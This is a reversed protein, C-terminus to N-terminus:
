IITLMLDYINDGLYAFLFIKIANGLFAALLFKLVPYKVAGASVGVLDFLPNPLLAFTFILPMVAKTKRIKKITDKYKPSNIVEISGYGFYYGTLEGLCAGLGGFIGILFPDGFAGAVTVIAMGPLPFFVSASSFLMVFFIGLYGFRLWNIGMIFNYNFILILTLLITIGILLIGHKRKDM